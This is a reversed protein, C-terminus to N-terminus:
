KKYEFGLKDLGSQLDPNKMFLDWLMGSRYNEIMVPIPGQDIALYRPLYWNYELSFADYPGYKGILTDHDKYMKKLMQMSEKPTYPFSSLAATPAIVGLDNGPRHGKYGKVSYSSTLGWLSDGYGKYSKPNDLAYKYHIKAQNQVLKWYDAYQDSLGKPNLGVYSYHAWFLPGVPAKNGEYYDLVVDEDYYKENSVIDGNRAWGNHYVSPKIPHTPSSAALVYMILCENYGRVPFNMDWGFEPSWHWYLVDEGNKTYWNWEVERWLKDIKAVLQQEKETGGKFYEAVTLMGQVLFATEVLDGGNDKKSFPLTKGTEGNLWHPWAGHFRDASELFDVIKEFRLLAQERTIFGRKVGVLIAMLGFGSGGTTVTNKPSTPYIDDMHLRERALGSNPEAGDWFYNFTEKQILDLLETDSLAIDHSEAELRTVDKNKNNCSLFFILLFSIYILKM